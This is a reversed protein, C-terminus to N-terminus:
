EQHHKEYKVTNEQNDTIGGTPPRKKLRIHEPLQENICGSGVIMHEEPVSHSELLERLEIADRTFLQDGKENQQREISKDALSSMEKRVFWIVDPLLRRRGVVGACPPNLWIGFMAKRIKNRDRAKKSNTNLIREGIVITVREQSRTQFSM